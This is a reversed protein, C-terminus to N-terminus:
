IIWAPKSCIHRHHLEIDNMLACHDAGIRLWDKDGMKGTDIPAVQVAKWPGLLEPLNSGNMRLDFGLMGKSSFMYLKM